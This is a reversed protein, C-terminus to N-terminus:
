EGIVTAFLSMTNGEIVVACELKYQVGATLGHVIPTTVEYGDVSASGDLKSESVDTGTSQDTLTVSPSAPSGWNTFDFLYALRENTGQFVPSESAERKSM